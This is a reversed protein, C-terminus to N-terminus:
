AAISASSGLSGAAQDSQEEVLVEGLRDQRQYISVERSGNVHTLAQSSSRLVYGDPLEGGLMREHEHGPISVKVAESLLFAAATGPDPNAEDIWRAILNGFRDGRV